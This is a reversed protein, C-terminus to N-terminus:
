PISETTSQAIFDCVAPQERFLREFEDDLTKDSYESVRDNAQGITESTVM